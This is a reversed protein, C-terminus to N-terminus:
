KGDQVTPLEPEPPWRAGSAFLFVGLLLRPAECHRSRGALSRAPKLVTRWNRTTAPVRAGERFYRTSLKTKGYGHPCYLLVGPGVMAAKKGRAARAARAGCLATESVHRFLITAHYWSRTAGSQPRLPNTSVVHELEEGPM